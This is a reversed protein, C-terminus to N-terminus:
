SRTAGTWTPRYHTLTGPLTETQVGSPNVHVIVAGYRYPPPRTCASMDLEPIARRATLRGPWRDPATIRVMAAAGTM